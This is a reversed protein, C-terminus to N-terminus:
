EGNMGDVKFGLCDGLQLFHRLWEQATSAGRGAQERRSPAVTNLMGFYLNQTKWLNVEIDMTRVIEAIAATRALMAVADPAEAIREMQRDLHAKVVYALGHGLVIRKFYPSEFALASWGYVATRAREGFLGRLTHVPKARRPPHTPIFPATM